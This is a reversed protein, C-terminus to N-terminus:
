GGTFAGIALLKIPLAQPRLLRVPKLRAVAARAAVIAAPCKLEQAAGAALLGSIQKAFNSNSFNGSRFRGGSRLKQANFRSGSRIRGSGGRVRGTGM